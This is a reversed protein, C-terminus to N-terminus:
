AQEKKFYCYRFKLFSSRLYNIFVSIVAISACGFIFPINIYEPVAHGFLEGAGFTYYYILMILQIAGLITYTHSVIKQRKVKYQEETM